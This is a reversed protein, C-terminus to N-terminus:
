AVEWKNHKKMNETATIIQLNNQVHLGCVTTGKLPIIHDVHHQVGTNKTMQRAEGYIARIADLDAWAPTRKLKAARRMNSHYLSLKRRKEARVTVELLAARKVNKKFQEPTPLRGTIDIVKGM